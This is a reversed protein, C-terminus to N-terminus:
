TAPEALHEVNSSQLATAVLEGLRDVYAGPAGSWALAGANLAWTHFVTRGDHAWRRISAKGVRCEDPEALSEQNLFTLTLALNCAEWEQDTTSTKGHLILVRGSARFDQLLRVLFARREVTPAAGASSTGAPHASREVQYAHEGLESLAVRLVHSVTPWTHGAAVPYQDSPHRHYARGANGVWRQDHAIWRALDPGDDALWLLASGCSELALGATQEVDYAHETGMVIVPAGDHGIGLSWQNVLAARENRDCRELLAATFPVDDIGLEAGAALGNRISNRLANAAEQGAVQLNGSGILDDLRAAYSEASDVVVAPHALAV